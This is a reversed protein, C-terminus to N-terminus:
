KGGQTARFLFRSIILGAITIGVLVIIETKVDGLSAGRTIVARFADNAYTNV